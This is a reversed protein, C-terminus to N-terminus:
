SYSILFVWNDDVKGDANAEFDEVFEATFYGKLEIYPSRQALPITKATEMDVKNVIQWVM